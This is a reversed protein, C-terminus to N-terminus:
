GLEIVPCLIECYAIRHQLRVKGGPALVIMDGFPFAPNDRNVGGFHEGFNRDHIPEDSHGSHFGQALM